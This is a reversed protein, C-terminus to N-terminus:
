PKIPKRLDDVHATHVDLLGEGEVRARAPRPPEPARAGAEAITEYGLRPQDAWLPRGGPPRFRPMVQTAFLTMSKRTMWEPMSGNDATVVVQGAQLEEVLQELGEAVTDPSGVLAMGERTLDDFTFEAPSKSRYGSSTMAQLSQVSTYGPPFVDGFTSRMLNQNFWMMHPEAEKRAQKDSEAVHVNVVATIQDRTAEYGHEAALERFTNCNKILTKRPNMIAMYTHGGGAAAELSERSGAAPIWMPPPQRLPRPYVNVIPLHFFEGRHEFPGPETLARKILELSEAHRRRATSPNVGMHHYAPGIGLPFGPFFRGGSMIDLLAIEEAVKLPNLYTNIVPGVAGVQIRNTRALLWSALLMASPYIGPARQEMTVLGDFGLHEGMELTTLYREMAMQSLMPVSFEGSPLDVFNSRRGEDIDPLYGDNGAMFLHFKLRRGDDNPATAGHTETM